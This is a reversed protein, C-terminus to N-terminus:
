MRAVYAGLRELTQQGGDLAGYEKVVYDRAEATPFVARMTLATKGGQDVFTVTTQFDSQGEDEGGHNYVLREPEVVELYKIWNPYDVGDPGHMIFRWVGGPRVDMEHTTTTFGTPGWWQAVHQPDIWAKFVLERPADLVRSVVIERDATATPESSSAVM